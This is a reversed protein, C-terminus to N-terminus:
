ATRHMRLVGGCDLLLNDHMVAAAQCGDAVQVLM